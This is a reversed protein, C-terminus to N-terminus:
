GPIGPVGPDVLAQIAAGGDRAYQDVRAIGIDHEHAREAVRILIAALAADVAGGIAPYAPMVRKEHPRCAPRAIESPIAGSLEHEGAHPLHAADGPREIAAAFTVAEIARLVAADGPLLQGAVSQGAARHAADPDRNRGTVRAAHVRQDLGGCSRQPSRIVAAIM